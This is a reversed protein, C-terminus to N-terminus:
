YFFTRKMERKSVFHMICMKVASKSGTGWVPGFGDQARVGLSGKAHGLKFLVQLDGVKPVLFGLGLLRISLALDNQELKLHAGSGPFPVLM